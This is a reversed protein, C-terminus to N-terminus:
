LELRYVNTERLRFGLKQYLSNAASRSPRTTLTLYTAGHEKGIQIVCEMLQKGIGRGRHAEDVVVDEIFGIRKGMKQIFYVSAIGVVTASERAVIIAAKKDAAIDRLQQLTGASAIEQRLQSLLVNIAGLDESTPDKIASITVM